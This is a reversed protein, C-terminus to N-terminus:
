AGNRKSIAAQNARGLKRCIAALTLQEEPSLVGFAAVVGAVHEPLIEAILGRGEPTLSIEISRRDDARRTREVLGRRVLNDIVLTMNASSRLIKEGVQGVPMPGLHYLAELVGFQSTTLQWTHLHDNIRQGTSEAARSLKIYAELAQREVATGEFHTGM